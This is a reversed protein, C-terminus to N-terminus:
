QQVVKRAEEGSSNIHPEIGHEATRHAILGKAGRLKKGCEPCEHQAGSRSRKKTRSAM